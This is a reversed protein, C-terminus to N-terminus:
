WDNCGTCSSEVQYTIYETRLGYYTMADFYDSSTASPISAYVTGSGSENENYGWSAITQTTGNKRVYMDVQTGYYYQTNYDSDMSATAHVTQSTCDYYVDTRGQVQEQAQLYGGASCAALILFVFRIANNM